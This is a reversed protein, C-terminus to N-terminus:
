KRHINSVLKNKLGLCSTKAKNEYYKYDISKIFNRFDRIFDPKPKIDDTNEKDEEKIPEELITEKVILPFTIAGKKRLHILLNYTEKSTERISDINVSLWLDKFYVNDKYRRYAKKIFRYNSYLSACELYEILEVKSISKSSKLFYDIIDINEYRIAQKINIYIKKSFMHKFNGKKLYLVNLIKESTVIWLDKYDLVSVDLNSMDNSELLTTLLKIEKNELLIKILSLNSHYEKLEILNNKFFYKIIELNYLEISYDFVNKGKLDLKVLESDTSGTVANIGLRSLRESESMINSKINYGGKILFDLSVNFLLGIKELENLNFETEGSLRSKITSQNLELVQGLFYESKGSSEMLEKVFNSTVKNNM